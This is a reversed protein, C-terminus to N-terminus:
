FKQLNNWDVVAKVNKHINIQNLNEVATNNLIVINQYKKILRMGHIIILRIKYCKIHIQGM